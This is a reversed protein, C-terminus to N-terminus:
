VQRAVQGGVGEPRAHPAHTAGPAFYRLLAQRPVLAKQQRSGGSPETPWTKASTIARRPLGPRNSRRRGKKLDGASQNNEGGLFGYFYEFGSGTPWADFPGTPGMQWVPM